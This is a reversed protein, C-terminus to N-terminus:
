HPGYDTELKRRQWPMRSNKKPRPGKVLYPGKSKPGYRRSRGTGSYSLICLSGRTELRQISALERSSPLGGLKKSSQLSCQQAKTWAQQTRSALILCRLNCPVRDIREDVAQGPWRVSCGDSAPPPSSSLAWWFTAFFSSCALDFSSRSSEFKSDMRESAQTVVCGQVGQLEPASCRQKERWQRRIQVM